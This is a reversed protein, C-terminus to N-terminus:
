PSATDEAPDFTAPSPTTLVEDDPQTKPPKTRKPQPTPEDAGTGPSTTASPGMTQTPTRTILADATAENSPTLTRSPSLDITIKTAPLRTRPPRKTFTKKVRTPKRSPALENTAPTRTSQQPTRSPRKEILSSAPTRSTPTSTPVPTRKEHSSTNETPKPTAGRTATPKISFAPRTPTPAPKEEKIKIQSATLKGDAVKAKIVVVQGEQLPVGQWADPAIKVPIDEVVWLDDGASELKGEFSVEVERQLRIVERAEQQRTEVLKEEYRERAAASTALNLRVQETLRKVPYLRDGPLSDAAVTVTSGIIALFALFTLVANLAWRQPRARILDAQRARTTRELVSAVLASSPRIVPMSSLARDQTQYALLATQCLPCRSLHPRLKDQQSEGLERYIALQKRVNQCHM